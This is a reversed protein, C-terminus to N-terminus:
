SPQRQNSGNKKEKKPKNKNICSPPMLLTLSILSGWKEKINTKGKKNKERGERNLNTSEILYPFSLLPCMSFAFLRILSGFLSGM